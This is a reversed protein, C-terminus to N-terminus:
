PEVRSVIGLREFEDVIAQVSRREDGTMNGSEAVASFARRFLVEASQPGPEAALALLLQGAAPNLLHTQAQHGVHVVFEDGWERWALQKADTLQWLSSM